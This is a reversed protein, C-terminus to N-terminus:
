IHCVQFEGILCQYVDERLSMICRSFKRLRQARRGKHLKQFSDTGKSRRPEPRKKFSGDERMHRFEVSAEGFLAPESPEGSSAPLYLTVGERVARQRNVPAFLRQGAANSEEVMLVCGDRMLRFRDRQMRMLREEVRLPRWMMVEHEYREFHEPIGHNNLRIQLFPTDGVANLIVAASGSKMHSVLEGITDDCGQLDHASM